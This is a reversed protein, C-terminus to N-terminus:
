VDAIAIGCGTRGYGNGNYLLYSVGNHEFQCPYCIMESDWGSVSVDIDVQDDMRTWNIGDSSEAYGARYTNKGGRFCYWMDYGNTTKRVNPRAIAYEEKAFDICVINTPSWRIGDESVAYKINYYHKAKPNGRESEWGTCSVYWMKWMENERLVCPSCNMYPESRSRDFIPAQSYREYTRGRDTSIALGIFFAFPTAVRKTWGTYYLYKDKGLDVICSPMAGCDDFCGLKGIDLYPREDLAVVSPTNGIRVLASAGRSYNNEDRAAFHVQVDREDIPEVFPNQAHSQMWVRNGPRILLGLKKWHFKM